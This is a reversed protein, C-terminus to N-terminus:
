QTWTIVPLGHAELEPKLNVKEQDAEVPFLLLQKRYRDSHSPQKSLLLM